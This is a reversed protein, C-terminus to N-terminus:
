LNRKKQVQCDLGNPRRETGTPCPPLHSTNPLTFHDIFFNRYLFFGLILFIGIFFIM